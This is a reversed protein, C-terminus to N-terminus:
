WSPHGPGINPIRLPLLAGDARSAGTPDVVIDGFISELTDAPDQDLAASGRILGRLLWGPGDYGVIRTTPSPPELASGYAIIEDGLCGHVADAARGEERLNEIIKARIGHWKSSRSRATFAQLCMLSDGLILEVAYPDAGPSKMHLKVSIGPVSRIILSGLDFLGHDERRGTVESIDWPGHGADSQRGGSDGDM